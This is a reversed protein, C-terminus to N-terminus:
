ALGRVRRSALFSFDFLKLFCSIQALAWSVRSLKHCNSNALLRLRDEDM